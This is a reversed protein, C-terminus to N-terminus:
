ASSNFKRSTSSASMYRVKGYIPREPGWARDHKCRLNCDPLSPRFAFFVLVPRNLANALKIATELAPNDIARQTRRTSYLVCCRNPDPAGDIPRTVRSITV